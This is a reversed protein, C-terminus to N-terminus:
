KISFSQLTTELLKMYQDYKKEEGTFTLIFVKGKEIFYYQKWKLLDIGQKGKFTIYYGQTGNQTITKETVVKFNKIKSPLYTKAYQAYTQPTYGKIDSARLDINETFTDGEGDNGSIISFSTNTAGAEMTWTNPYKITYNKQVLTKQATCWITNVFLILTILSKM